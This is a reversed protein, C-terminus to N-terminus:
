RTGRRRGVVERSGCWPSAGQRVSEVERRQRSRLSEALLAEIESSALDRAPDLASDAGDLTIRRADECTM